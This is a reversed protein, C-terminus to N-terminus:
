VGVEASGRDNGQIVLVDCSALRCRVEFKGQCV